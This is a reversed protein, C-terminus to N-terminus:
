WAVGRRLGARDLARAARPALAGPMRNVSLGGGSVFTTPPLGVVDHDEGVEDWFEVQACTAERLANVVAVDVANGDRDTRWGAACADVVVDSARGLVRDAGPPPDPKGLYEALETPTAFRM